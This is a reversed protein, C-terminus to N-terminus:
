KGGAPAASASGAPEPNNKSTELFAFLDAIEEITLEKFLGEPMVSVKAKVKTEVSDAPIELRTADSLLLVLNNSGPNPLPMGTHVLGAKTEVTVATYQDSIVQSPLLVAELIEKKRFRRRLTTLDPGVGEGEKLFRHCKICAAKTFVLKGRAADGGAAAPDKELFEVLQEVTYKTKDTDEKALEPVPEDPYKEVFWQQYETLVAAVDEVKKDIAGTWKHLVNLAAKGGDKGLKLGAVIVARYEEPRSPRYDGSAVAQLCVQMTTEDGSVIGRMLYPINEALPHKALARALLDRRDASEDFLKRLLAQSEPTASRSLVDVTLAALEKGGGAPQSEFEALLTTILNEFDQVEEPRSAALILRAGHPREKWDLIFQRREEPTFQELCGTVINRLFGQLSNGGEWDRTTEYWALLRRKDEGKWGTRVYRLCLAYHTEISNDKASEIAQILAQAAGPVNLWAILEGIERTLPRALFERSGSANTGLQVTFQYLLLEGLQKKQAATEPNDIRDRILILELMRRVDLNTPEPLTRAFLPALRELAEKASLVDPGLHYLALLGSLQVDVNTHALVIQRWADVPMRELSLRAAFRIWRDDSALLKVIPDVPPTLGARTFAECARRQVVPNKDGLLKTLAFLTEQTPHDGLLFTAFQRVSPDADVVASLLLQGHPRPGHQSLLTLARVKEAPTGKLVKAVLGVGWEGGLKTKIAAVAERSWAAQPQPMALADDLTEAKLTKSKKKAGATHTVRYIGGETRRGGTCFVVSGDRDVEIDSVNLPNGTVLYDFSGTYTAGQPKLYGVIIRGMSWDCNLMAGRYKEPFQDHEYFVVGTPSGRGVDITAPLSDFYWEPWNKAGSRWGFNAGPVCHNIRVPKYWPLNVDWEMDSDFTFLDGRQNFCIDYQNRFGVTEKWWQKGDSTFRWVTGGPAKIGVAHGGADEFAPELLYGEEEFDRCPTNAEPTNMIWAHNGINHYLWGDPGFVVDHPGHEGINGKHKTVLIVDDAVDDHNADPLRYVGTGQPGTGVAYLDDFVMCLGQCNKLKDTYETVADYTGDGDNDIVNYVTGMERSVILRGRNGWTMAILSGVLEQGAIKRIEFGEAVQFRDLEGAAFSIAKWPSDAHKGIVKVPTWGKEDFRPNLWGPGQPAKTIAKWEADTDCPIKRGGQGRIEADLLLGAKGSKNAAEVAFVNTGREVIGSLSFRFAKAGGGSGIKRGNVWLTFEDDCAITALGTSPEDAKYEKRFWVKGAAAQTAPDGADFWIWQADVEQQALVTQTGGCVVLMSLSSLLLSRLM